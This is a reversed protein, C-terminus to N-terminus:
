DIIIREGRFKTFNTLVEYETTELIETFKNANDMILIKDGIKIKSNSIDVMFCDMCINGVNKIRNNKYDSVVLKNSFKRPLGDGYGLPIAGVKMDKDATFSCLYGVHEGKFVKVVDVIESEIAMVPLLNEDGYGYIEIGSRFMQAEIDNFVAKGGGVHTITDWDTPLLSCFSYFKEKQKQTYEKDTTLSSFHTYLGKLQKGYKNLIKIIKLFDSHTKIGYRNMGTNICLHIKFNSNEFKSLKCLKKVQQFSFVAFEINMQAIKEYDEVAGFVIIEKDTYNRLEFAENENSVGFSVNEDKLCLAIEKMGHGYANAKVMVCIKKDKIFKEVYHLNHLLNKKNIFIKNFM